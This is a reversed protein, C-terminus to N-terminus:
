SDLDDAESPTAEAGPEADVILSGATVAVRDEPSPALWDRDGVYARQEGRRQMWWLAAAGLLVAGLSIWGNRSLGLLRFTTDTRLLEMLFRISGYLLLYVFFSSGKALKGRRELWLVIPVLVLANWLSEYLFTPHFTEFGLFESPRNAPDIQLGWPLDTPTGFLEQNFYNGWRGIAQALPVGIAVADGAALVDGQWRRMLYIVTVAGFILGGFLALGGEWLYLVAWPRGSFRGSHTVVYGARAGLFGVVVAWIAVREMMSGDGGYRQYRRRAVVVAVIVGLAILIGYFHITIPGIEIVNTSPSPISALLPTM